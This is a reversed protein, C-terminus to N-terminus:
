ILEKAHTYASAGSGNTAFGIRKGNFQRAM